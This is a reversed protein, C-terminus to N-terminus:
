SAKLFSEKPEPCRMWDLGTKHDTVFTKCKSVTFRKFISEGDHWAGANPGQRVLRVNASFMKHIVAPVGHEISFVWRYHNTDFAADSFQTECMPDSVEYNGNFHKLKTLNVICGLFTSTQFAHIEAFENLTPLRFDNM